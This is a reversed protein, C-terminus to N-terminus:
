AEVLEGTECTISNSPRSPEIEALALLALAHQVETTTGHIVLLVQWGEARRTSCLATRPSASVPSPRGWLVSAAM